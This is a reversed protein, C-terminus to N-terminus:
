RTLAALAQSTMHGTTIAKFLNSIACTFTWEATTKRKGRM